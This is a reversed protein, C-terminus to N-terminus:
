RREATARPDFVYCGPTALLRGTPTLSLNTPTMLGAARFQVVRQKDGIRDYVYTYPVDLSVWLSGSADASRPASSPASPPCSATPRREGQGPRRVTGCTSTSSPARSTASSSCRERTRRVQPVDPRRRRLRLLVRGRSQDRGPRQQARPPSRTGTRTGDVRLEGFTRASVGDAGLETVLSGSEPLSM